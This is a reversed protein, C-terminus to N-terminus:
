QDSADETSLQHARVSCAHGQDCAAIGSALPSPEPFIRLSVRHEAFNMPSRMETPDRPTACSDINM